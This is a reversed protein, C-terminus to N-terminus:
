QFLQAAKYYDDQWKEIARLKAVLQDVEEPESFCFQAGDSHHVLYSSSLGLRQIAGRSFSMSFSSGVKESANMQDSVVMLFCQGKEDVFFTAEIDVGKEVMWKDDSTFYIDLDRFKVPMRKSLYSVHNAKAIERWRVFIDKAQLLSEIFTDTQKKRSLKVKAKGDTLEMDLWVDNWGTAWTSYRTEVFIGYTSQFPHMEYTDKLLIQSKSPLCASLLLAPVALRGVFTNRM